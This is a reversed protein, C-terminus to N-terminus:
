CRGRLFPWRGTSPTWSCSWAAQEAAGEIRTAVHRAIRDLYPQAAPATVFGWRGDLALRIESETAAALEETPLEPPLEGSRCDECRQDDHPLIADALFPVGCSECTFM